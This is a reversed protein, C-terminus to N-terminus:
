GVWAVQCYRWELDHRGPHMVAREAQTTHPSSDPPTTPLLSWFAPNPLSDASGETGPPHEWDYFASQEEYLVQLTDRSKM